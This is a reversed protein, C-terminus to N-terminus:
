EWNRRGQPRRNQSLASSNETESLVWSDILVLDWSKEWIKSWAKRATAVELSMQWTRELNFIELGGSGSPTRGIMRFNLTRSNAAVSSRRGREEWLWPEKGDEECFAIMKRYWFISVKRAGVVVRGDDKSGCRRFKQFQKERVMQMREEFTFIHQTTALVSKTQTMGCTFRSATTEYEQNAVSSSWPSVWITESPVDLVMSRTQCSLRSDLSDRESEM